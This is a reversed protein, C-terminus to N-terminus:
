IYKYLPLYWPVLSKTKRSECTLSRTLFSSSWGDEGIRCVSWSRSSPLINMSKSSISSSRFVCPGVGELRLCSWSSWEECGVCIVCPFVYWVFISPLRHGVVSYRPVEGEPAHIGYSKVINTRHWFVLVGQRLTYSLFIIRTFVVHDM